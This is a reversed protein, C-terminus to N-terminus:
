GEIRRVQVLRNRLPAARTGEGWPEAVVGGCALAAHVLGGDQSAFAVHSIRGDSEAFFLLDGPATGHAPIARGCEAQQRADRPLSVGRMLYTIQVLASCDVGRPTSGGWLYPAGSFVRLAWAEPAVTRAIARVDDPRAVLGSIVRCPRGDALRLTGGDAPLARAGPDLRLEGDGLAVVAGASLWADTRWREAEAETTDCSYGEHLWGTYGDRELRIEQWEGKRHTVRAAEGCLMQSVQESRPNAEALVPAVAARCLVATV